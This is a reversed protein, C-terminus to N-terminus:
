LNYDWVMKLHWSRTQALISNSGLNLKLWGLGAALISNSGLDLKLL